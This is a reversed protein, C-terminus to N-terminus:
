CPYPQQYPPPITILPEEMHRRINLHAMCRHQQPQPIHNTTNGILGNTSHSMGPKDQGFPM